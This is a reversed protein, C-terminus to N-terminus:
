LAIGLHRTRGSGIASQVYQPRVYQLLYVESRLSAFFGGIRNKRAPASQASVCFEGGRLHFNGFLFYENGQDCNLGKM